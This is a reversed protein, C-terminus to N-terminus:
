ANAYNRELPAVLSINQGTARALTATTSVFQGTSLGIAVVTVAADTGSTRGGQTNSDYAFTFPISVQGSVNGSIPAAAADNVITANATGYNNGGPLTTFYMRYVANTDGVLNTNFNLTGASAYPYERTAATNDYFVISNLDADRIGEVMVGTGGGNPNTPAYLGCKLSDGVFNLLLDATKGTV